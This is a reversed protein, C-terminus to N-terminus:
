KQSVWTILSENLYFTMGGTSKRDEINGALDSDSYGSLLYNGTGKAYILGYDVTGKVYRLIRKVANMHLNTPREMYRSVLVVSFAIDPRTHVLYRLGGVLSKFVTSNVARGEEDKSLQIRPEMPYSVSNCESLGAKDLLKKAYATQKLETFGKKQSVEIGLYYSLKGLDSMDFKENMKKKFQSIVTASTGTIFLDDVYVGVVLIESGERKTYVAHEYPCKEFGLEELYKSLKAYWARPAQRLGYFAKVLKYVLHAKGKRVFGEPQSVFVTEQLDGNLFASKVDLHHVEWENKAALALLLRVTELRTM